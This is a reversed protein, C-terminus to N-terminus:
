PNNMVWLCVFNSQANEVMVYIQSPRQSNGSYKFRVYMHLGITAFRGSVLKKIQDEVSSMDGKNLRADVPFMNWTEKGPGGLTDAIIHGAQDTAKGGRLSHVFRRVKPDTGSGQGLMNSKILVRM